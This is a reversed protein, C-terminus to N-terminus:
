FTLSKEYFLEEEILARPKEYFNEIEERLLAYVRGMLLELEKEKKKM